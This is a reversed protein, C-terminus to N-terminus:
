RSMTVPSSFICATGHSLRLTAETICTSTSLFTSVSRSSSTAASAASLSSRSKSSRSTCARRAIISAPSSLSCSCACAAAAATVESWSASRAKMPWYWKSSASTSPEGASRREPQVGSRYATILSLKCAARSSSARPAYQSAGVVRSWGSSASSLPSRSSCEATSNPEGAITASSSSAPASANAVCRSPNVGSSQTLKGCFAASARSNSSRWERRSWRRLRM